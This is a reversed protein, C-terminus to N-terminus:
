SCTARHVHKFRIFRRRQQDSAPNQDIPLYLRIPPEEELTVQKEYRVVGVGTRWPTGNSRQVRKGIPDQDPWFRTAPNEDVICVERAGKKDRENEKILGM